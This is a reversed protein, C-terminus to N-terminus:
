RLEPKEVDHADEIGSSKTKRSVFGAIIRIIIALALIYFGSSLDIIFALGALISVVGAILFGAQESKKWKQIGEIALIICFLVLVGTFLADFM